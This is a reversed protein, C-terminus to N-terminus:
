NRETMETGHPFQWFITSKIREKEENNKEEFKENEGYQTKKNVEQNEARKKRKEM